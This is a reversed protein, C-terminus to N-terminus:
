AGEKTMDRKVPCKGKVLVQGRLILPLGQDRCHAIGTCRAFSELRLAAPVVVSTAVVRVVHVQEVEIRRFQVVVVLVLSQRNALLKTM